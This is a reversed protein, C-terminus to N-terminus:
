GDGVGTVERSEGRTEASAAAEHGALRDPEVLAHLLLCVVGVTIASDAVNFRPWAGVAVFDTVFGHRLRDGLNGLAGGVILGVGLVLWRSREGSGAYYWVLGGLVVVALVTLLPGQGPFLGFAAGRNEVYELALARGILEITGRGTGPGLTARVLEKTLLDVVLVVGALLAPAGVVSWRM